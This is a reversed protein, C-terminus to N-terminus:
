IRNRFSSHQRTHLTHIDAFPRKVIDQNYFFARLSPGPSQWQALPGLTASNGVTITVQPCQEPQRISIGIKLIAIQRFAITPALALSVVSRGYRKASM